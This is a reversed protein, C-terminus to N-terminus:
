RAVPPTLEARRVCATRNTKRKQAKGNEAFWDIVLRRMVDFLVITKDPEMSHCIMNKKGTELIDNLEKPLFTDSEYVNKIKM